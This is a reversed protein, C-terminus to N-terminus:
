LIESNNKFISNCIAARELVPLKILKDVHRQIKRKIRQRETFDKGLYRYDHLQTPEPYNMYLLETAQGKHTQTKYEAVRWSKLLKSYIENPYTSIAINCELTLLIKLLRIHDRDNMEHRYLDNLNRRSSLPYPPDAYIFTDKHFEKASAWASSKLFEIADVNFISLKYPQKISDWNGESITREDIEVGISQRPAPLKSKLIVGSGLFLEIYRKHPPIQNIILQYVGASSKNGPYGM